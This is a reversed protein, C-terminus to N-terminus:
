SNLKGELKQKYRLYHMAQVQDMADIGLVRCPAEIETIYYPYDDGNQRHQQILNKVARYSEADTICFQQENCYIALGEDHRDFVIRVRLALECEEPKICVALCSIVGVSNKQIEYFKISEAQPLKARSLLDYLFWAYRQLVQEPRANNHQAIFLAGKEDIVYISVHKPGAFYFLQVCRALNHTFISPIFTQELVFADFIVPSFQAQALGLERLIQSNNELRYYSLEKDRWQFLFYAGEGATVYRSPYEAQPDAFYKLLTEFLATLRWSISKGRVKTFCLAKFVDPNDLLESHNFVEVLCAFIGELGSYTQLSVEGWNSVTLRELTRVLCLRQEGYSLPDSRESMVIQQQNADIELDIGFNVLLLSSTFRLPQEYHALGDGLKNLSRFLFGHCEALLVILESSELKVSSSVLKLNINKKYLGNVAAWCLLEVFGSCQKIYTEPLIKRGQMNDAFLRWVVPKDEAQYEVFSLMDPSTQVMSRTTLLELKGPRVDLAARLKRSILKLDQNETYRGERLSGTFKLMMRLCNQLQERIVGHEVSAKEITWFHQLGLNKLLEPPWQWQRAITQLLAEHEFRTKNDLATSSSGMIKLHFCERALNLRLGGGNQLLYDDVKSYILLYPDLMEVSFDGSYIAQKLTICLWQPNPLESAYSEMLLLKLLSKHPSTLSKYIHWLTASVFEAMPMNELGGLDIVEHEFIFRNDLLHQVYHAYHREQDPPVLWWVPIRGAIYISTRYFEELLLYHQTEGSSEVSIPTNEGQRFHESNVLFFHVEIKLTAAWAEIAATKHRLADLQVSTLDPQHCLWIDIDSHKSFAMSGVSGMLFLSFIPYVRLAQRKYVFSKCFQKVMDLTQKDPVFDPLGFPTDLSVFGPLLPHNIHFLMPLLQLFDQQRPQFFAQVRQLRCQNFYKFRQVLAHLDKKSIEEGPAGLKIPYLRNTM